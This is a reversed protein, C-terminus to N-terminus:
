WFKVAKFADAVGGSVTDWAKNAVDGVKPGVAEFLLVGAAGCLPAVTSGVGTAVCAATAGVGAGLALAGKADLKAAKQCDFAQITSNAPYKAKLQACAAVKASDSLADWNRQLDAVAADAVEQPTKKKWQAMSFVNALANKVQSAFVSKPATVASQQTAPRPPRTAVYAVVGGAGLLALAQNQTIPM